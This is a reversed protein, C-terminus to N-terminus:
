NGNASTSKQNPIPQTVRVYNTPFIGSVEGDPGELAGEYWNEDIQDFLKLTQGEKFGLEGANEAQFDYLAVCQGWKRTEDEKGSVNSTQDAKESVQDGSKAQDVQNAVTDDLETVAGINLEKLKKPVYQSHQRGASEDRLASLKDALGELISGCSKYYDRLAEVLAVLQSIQEVDNQLLNHMGQSAANFSEEFKEEAIKMEDDVINAGNARRRKKCDFDLRRGQLKKRHFLVERLDKTQLQTLPDLFDQRVDDELAYKIEAMQKFSEGTEMLSRVYPSDEGFRHAIRLITEGLMGEPQAYNRTRANQAVKANLMMKSRTAPNPQLYEKTKTILEEVLEATLDTKREMEMFEENLKTGEVGGIKESMFQLPLPFYPTNNNIM